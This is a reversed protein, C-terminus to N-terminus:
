ISLLSGTKLELSWRESSVRPPISRWNRSFDQSCEQLFMQRFAQHFRSLIEPPFGTFNLLFEPFHEQSIEAPTRLSNGSASSPTGPHVGFSIGGYSRLFELHLEPYKKPLVASFNETSRWLFKPPISPVRFSNRYLLTFSNVKYAHM